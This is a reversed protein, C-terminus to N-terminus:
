TGNSDHTEGEKTHKPADKYLISLPLPYYLRIADVPCDMVCSRCHWCEEPYRVTPIEKVKVPGFVDMCCILACKNCAICTERNIVPPM